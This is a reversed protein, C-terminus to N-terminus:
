VLMKERQGWAGRQGKKCDKPLPNYTGKTGTKETKKTPKDQFNGTRSEGL